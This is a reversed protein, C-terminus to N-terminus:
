SPPRSEHLTLMIWNVGAAYGIGVTVGVVGNVLFAWRIWKEIGQRSFIPVVVLTTLGYFFAWGLQLSAM